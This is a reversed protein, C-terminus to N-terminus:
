IYLADLIHLVYLTPRPVLRFDTHTIGEDIEYRPIKETRPM